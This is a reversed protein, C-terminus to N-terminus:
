KLPSDTIKMGCYDVPNDSFNQKKYIGLEISEKLLFRFNNWFEETHGVSITIIHALEHLAVFLMTNKKVLAEEKDRSRLCFVIKEGKNVSYSTYGSDPTGESINDPNFKKVLRQVRKDDPYKIELYDRLEILKNSIYALLNAAEKDDDMKRVLYRKNNLDSQVYKVEHKTSQLYIYIIYVIVCIIFFNTFEEM